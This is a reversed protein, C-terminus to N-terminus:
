WWVWFLVMALLCRYIVFPMMGVREVLGLFWGICLWATVAALGTALGLISWAVPEAGFFLQLGKLLSAATIIPIALLFSFRAATSRNLGLLLGATITIGSRSTGPIIALAQACGILLAARLNLEGGTGRRRDAVGLLLGFVATTTAIVVVSRLNGEIWDDLLLGAVGAPVTALGLWLVMRSEDNMEREGLARASGQALALLDGRFYFLVALLTGLHVAVDFALGQDQWGLLQAPM